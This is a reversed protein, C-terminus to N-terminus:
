HGSRENAIQRYLSEYRKALPEEALVNFAWQRGQEGRSKLDAPDSMLKSIADAFAQPTADAITGGAAQVERWIDTGQTTRVPTGASMAEALAVGFNEQHTPLAFLDASQFLSIKSAGTVLGVFHVQEKLNLQAALDRLYTEYTHEGNGAVILVFRLGRDRLMAAAKILTDVGKKEHLRSLFLIKFDGRKSEPLMALGLEKGPLSRFPELNVLIPLVATPTGAHFWKRAQNLEEEATCHV